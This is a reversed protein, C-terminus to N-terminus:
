RGGATLAEVAAATRAIAETLVRHGNGTILVDDEIRVGIGEEPIYIGPEVTIVAGSQLPESMQGVDHTDLGLYHSTGHPFYASFGAEEIM